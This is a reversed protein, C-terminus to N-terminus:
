LTSLDLEGASAGDSVAYGRLDTVDVQEAIVHRGMEEIERALGGIRGAASASLFATTNVVPMACSSVGGERAFALAHSRGM